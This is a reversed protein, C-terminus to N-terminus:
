TGFGYRSFHPLKGNLCTLTGTTVDFTVTGSMREWRKTTPNWYKLYLKSRSTIKMKSFDLGKMTVSFNAPTSFSAGEPGFDFTLYDTNASMTAIFDSKVSWPAFAVSTILSVDPNSIRSATSFDVGSELSSSATFSGEPYAIAITGLLGGSTASVLTSATVIKGLVPNEPMPVLMTDDAGEANPETLQAGENQCGILAFSVSLAVVLAFLSRKM